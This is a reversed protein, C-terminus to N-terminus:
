GAVIKNAIRGLKEFEVTCVDGVQMYATPKRDKALGGPTGTAVIDGPELTFIRSLFSLLYPVDYILQDTNSEQLVKDNVWLKLALKGPDRVEDHTVLWPGCPAFNDFTKGRLVQKDMATLDSASMDNFITYGAIYEFAREIPIDRAPKGVVFALEAEYGLCKTMAPYPIPDFPGCLANFYKSFIRPEPPIPAGTEKIFDHYNHALCIIRKPNQVPAGLEIEDSKFSVKKGRVHIDQSRPFKELTEELAQRSLEGGGLFAVSDSPLLAAAIDQSRSIGKRELIYEFALNLDLVTNNELLGFRFGREQYKYMVWKM